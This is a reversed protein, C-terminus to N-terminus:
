NDTTKKKHKFYNEHNNGTTTQKKHKFCNECSNGQLQKNRITSAIKVATIQLINRINLATKAVTKQPKIEKIHFLLCSKTM